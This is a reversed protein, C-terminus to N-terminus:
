IKIIENTNIVDLHELSHTVLIAPIKLKSVSNNILEQASINNDRDLGSFPEDMLLLKPQMLLARALAVRQQQGGSLEHPYKDKHKELNLMHM